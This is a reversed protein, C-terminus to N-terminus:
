EIVSGHEASSLRRRIRGHRRAVKEHDVHGWNAKRNFTIDIMSNVFVAQLVFEYLLEPILTGALLMARWGSHRVSYVREFIFLIGIGAWFPFWIWDELALFTIVQMAVFTNLALVGYGIGLQQGWYRFTAPTMGYTGINEIAGRQWRMRQKWLYRWTPMLETHVVCDRPSEMLAGLTKLALTLENDETLSLTDYVDGKIGKIVTGRSEAVTKLAISRFMTSTGTLVFVQGRRRNIKQEYRDYENRQFLGLLGDGPYGKFIGGIAMIGRDNTFRKVAPEIFGEDLSTDADMIMVIDNNGLGPLLIKLAQNLAGGKQKTNGQTEFVEAGLDRAIEVTKDTCNDAVVIIRDPARSQSQLSPLTTALIGAENHAPILVTVTIEGDFVGRTAAMHVRPSLPYSSPVLSRRSNNSARKEIIAFSAAAFLAVIASLWIAYIVPFENRYLLGHWTQPPKQESYDPAISLDSFIAIGFLVVIVLLIGIIAGMLNKNARM